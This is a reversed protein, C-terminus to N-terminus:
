SCTVPTGTPECAKTQGDATRIVIATDVSSETMASSGFDVGTRTEFEGPITSTTNSISNGSSDKFIFRVETITGTGSSRQYTVNKLGATNGPGCAIPSVSLALCENTGALQKAGGSIAPRVFAWIIGVAVLVLLIILVNTIIDSLGKKTHIM